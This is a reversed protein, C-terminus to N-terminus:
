CEFKPNHEIDYFRIILFMLGLVVNRTMKIRPSIITKSLV